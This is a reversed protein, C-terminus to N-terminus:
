KRKNMQRFFMVREDFSEQEVPNVVKAFMDMIEQPHSSARHEAANAYVFRTWLLSNVITMDKNWMKCEVELIRSNFHRIFSDCIVTANYLGPRFYSIQNQVVMWGEGTDRVHDIPNFGYAAEVQDERANLLYRIHTANYLHGMPDCDSFKVRVPSTLIKKM